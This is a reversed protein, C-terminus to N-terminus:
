CSNTYSKMECTLYVQLSASVTRLFALHILVVSKFKEIAFPMASLFAILVKLGSASIISLSNVLQFLM